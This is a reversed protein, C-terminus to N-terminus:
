FLSVAQTIVGIALGYNTMPVDAEEAIAQRGLMYARNFMCAGCHIILDYKKIQDATSPFDTGRVFDIQVNPAIKRLMKPIKVTGIDETAPVHTCAEAILVRSSDTLKKIAQAGKMFLEINGKHAAMMISFSTLKSAAPKNQSVFSFIQSDTIILDPPNKLSEITQLFTDQTCCHVLVKRDLLDRITQVQPLILRGKPAQIDQPMVLLVSDGPNCYKGTLSSQFMELFDAPVKEKIAQILKDKNKGTISDVFVVPNNQFLEPKTLREKCLADTEAEAKTIVWVLPKGSQILKQFGESQIAAEVDEEGSIVALILDCKALADYTKAVRQKGLESEDDFGATDIFVCPGVGPLEMNKQVCDTTTGSVDSVISFSQGILMNMLSSKGSNTNGFIGIYLREGKTVEMFGWM